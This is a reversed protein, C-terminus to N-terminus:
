IEKLKIDFKKISNLNIDKKNVISHAGLHLFTDDIEDQIMYRMIYGDIMELKIMNDYKCFLYAILWGPTKSQTDIATMEGSDNTFYEIIRTKM